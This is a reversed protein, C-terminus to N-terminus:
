PQAHTRNRGSAKAQYLGADARQLLSDLGDDTSTLSASGSSFTIVPIGAAHCATALATRLREDFRGASPADAHSLLVCFEEGGYRCALDSDRLCARLAEAMCQLARDGAAHGLRDNLQKFHDLDIMLVTLPTRYRRALAVIAAAREEFARRNPLGTLSDTSALRQLGREAEEHWAGLLGVTTLFLTVNNLLAGGLNVPHPARFYPYAETFFGGLVGRWATVIGMLSWAALLIGRWRWSGQVAPTSVAICLLLLQLALGLNAWAVRFAYDDFRLGYGLPTLIALALLPLRGPRPGMWHAMAHWLLVFTGSLLAMSLTSLIQDHVRAALLFSAWALAQAVVASQAFRAAGSVRWGMVTPMAVSLAFVNAFMVVLLTQVDLNMTRHPLRLAAM